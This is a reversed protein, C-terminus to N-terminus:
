VPLILSVESIKLNWGRMKSDPFWFGSSSQHSALAALDCLTIASRSNRVEQDRSMGIHTGVGDGATSM